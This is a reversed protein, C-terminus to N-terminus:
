RAAAGRGAATRGAGCPAGCAAPDTARSPGTPEARDARGPRSPEARDARSPGTPETVPATRTVQDGQGRSRPLQRVRRMTMVRSEPAGAALLRAEGAVSVGPAGEAELAQKQFMYGLYGPYVGRRSPPSPAYSVTSARAPNAGTAPISSAPRPAHAPGSTTAATTSSGALM